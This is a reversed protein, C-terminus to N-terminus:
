LAGILPTDCIATMVHRWQSHKSQGMQGAATSTVVLKELASSGNPNPHDHSHIPLFLSWIKDAASVDISDNLTMGLNGLVTEVTEDQALIENCARSIYGSRLISTPVNMTTTKPETLSDSVKVCDLSLENCFGGFFSPQLMFLRNIITETSQDVPKPNAPDIFLKKFKDVMLFRTGLSTRIQTGSISDDSPGTVPPPQQNTNERIYDEIEKRTTTLSLALEERQSDSVLISKMVNVELLADGIREFMLDYDSGRKESNSHVGHCRLCERDYLSKGNDFKFLDNTTFKPANPDRSSNSGSSPESHKPEVLCGSLASFCLTLICFKALISVPKSFTNTNVM